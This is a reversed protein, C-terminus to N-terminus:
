QSAAVGHHQECLEQLRAYYLQLEEMSFQSLYEIKATPNKDCIMEILQYKSM